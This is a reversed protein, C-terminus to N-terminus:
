TLNTPHIDFPTKSRKLINGGLFDDPHNPNSWNANQSFSCGLPHDTRARCLIEYSKSLHQIDMSPIVAMRKGTTILPSTSVWIKWCIESFFHRQQFCACDGRFHHASIRKTKWTGKKPEQRQSRSTVKQALVALQKGSTQRVSCLTFVYSPITVPNFCSM